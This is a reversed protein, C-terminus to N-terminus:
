YAIDMIALYSTQVANTSQFKLYFPTSSELGTAIPEWQSPMDFTAWKDKGLSQHTLWHDEGNSVGCWDKGVAYNPICVQVSVLYPLTNDFKVSINGSCLGTVKTLDSKSQTNGVLVNLTHIYSDGNCQPSITSTSIFPTPTISIPLGSQVRPPLLGYITMGIIGLILCVVLTIFGLSCIFRILKYREKLWELFQEASMAPPVPKGLDARVVDARQDKPISEIKVLLTKLKKEKSRFYRSVVSLVLIAVVLCTLALFSWITTVSSVVSQLSEFVTRNVEDNKQIM